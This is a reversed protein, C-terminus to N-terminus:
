GDASLDVVPALADDGSNTDKLRYAETKSASGGCDDAPRSSHDAAGGLTDARGDGTGLLRRQKRWSGM